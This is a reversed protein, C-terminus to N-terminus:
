RREERATSTTPEIGLCGIGKQKVFQLLYGDNPEVEVVHSATGLVFRQAMNDVYSRAHELWSTSFSSFYAYESDFLEAHHAYDETQVLWCSTCVFVRLPFWREPASLQEKGLYANSPPATGLDLFIQEL